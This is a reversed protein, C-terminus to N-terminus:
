RTTSRFTLGKQLDRGGALPGVSVIAIVNALTILLLSGFYQGLSISKM